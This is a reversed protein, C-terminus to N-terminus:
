ELVTIVIRATADRVYSSGNYYSYKVYGVMKRGRVLALKNEPLGPKLRIIAKQEGTTYNTQTALEFYTNFGNSKGNINANLLTTQFKPMFDSPKCKLTVYTTKAPDLEYEKQITVPSAEAVTVTLRDPINMLRNDRYYAIGYYYTGPKLYDEDTSLVFTRNAPDFDKLELDPGKKSIKILRVSDYSGHDFHYKVEQPPVVLEGSADPVLDTINCYRTSYFKGAIRSINPPDDFKTNWSNNVFKVSFTHDPDSKMWMTVTTTKDAPTVVLQEGSRAAKGGSVSYQWNFWDWHYCGEGNIKAGQRYRIVASKPANYYVVGDGAAVDGVDFGSTTISDVTYYGGSFSPVTIKVRVTKSSRSGDKSTATILVTSPKRVYLTATGRDYEDQVVYAAANKDENDTPAITVYDNMYDGYQDLVIVKAGHASSASLTNSLTNGANDALYVQTPVLPDAVIRVFATATATNEPYDAAKIIIAIYNKTIDPDVYYGKKVTVRGKKNVTINNKVKDVPETVTFGDGTSNPYASMITYSFKQTKAKKGDYYNYGVPVASFHINKNDVAAQRTIWRTDISHIASIVQISFTTNAQYMSGTQPIDQAGSDGAPSYIVIRYTGPKVDSDVALYLDDTDNRFECSIGDEYGYVSDYAVATLDHLYSTDKNYKVSGVYVFPQGTYIKTRKKTFGLKQAYFVEKTTFRHSITNGATDHIMPVTLATDPDPMSLEKNILVLRTEILYTCATSASRSGSHVKVSKIQKSVKPTKPVYYYIPTIPSGAPLSEGDKPAATVKIEYYTRETATSDAVKTGCRLTLMIENYGQITSTVRLLKLKKSATTSVATGDSTGALIVAGDTTGQGSLMEMGSQASEADQVASEGGVDAGIDAIVSDGSGDTTAAQTYDCLSGTLLVAALIGSLCKKWRNKM